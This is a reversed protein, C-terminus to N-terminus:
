RDIKGFTHLQTQKIVIAFLLLTINWLEYVLFLGLGVLTTWAPFIFIFLQANSVMLAVSLLVLWGILTVLWLLIRGCVPPTQLRQTEQSLLAKSEADIIKKVERKATESNLQSYLNNHRKIKLYLNSNIIVSIGKGVLVASFAISVLVILNVISTEM